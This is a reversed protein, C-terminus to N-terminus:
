FGTARYASEIRFYNIHTGPNQSSGNCDTESDRGSRGRFGSKGDVLQNLQDLRARSGLGFPFGGILLEGVVDFCYLQALAQVVTSEFLELSHTDAYVRPM